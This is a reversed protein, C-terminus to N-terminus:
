KKALIIEKLQISFDLVMCLILRDYGVQVMVSNDGDLTPSSSYHKMLLPYKKGGILVDHTQYGMMDYFSIEKGDMNMVTRMEENQEPEYYNRASLFVTSKNSLQLRTGNTFYNQYSIADTYCSGCIEASGSTNYPASITWNFGIPFPHNKDPDTEYRTLEITLNYKTGDAQKVEYLLRDGAAPLYRYANQRESTPVIHKSLPQSAKQAASSLPILFLLLAFCSYKM